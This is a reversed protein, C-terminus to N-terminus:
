SIGYWIDNGSDPEEQEVRRTQRLLADWLAAYCWKTVSRGSAKAAQKCLDAFDRNVRAGILTRTKVDNQHQKIARIRPSIVKELAKIATEQEVGPMTLVADLADQIGQRENAPLYVMWGALKQIHTQVIAKNKPAAENPAKISIIKGTNEM